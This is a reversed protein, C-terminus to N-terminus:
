KAIIKSEKQRKETKEKLLKADHITAVMNIRNDKFIQLIYPVIKGLAFSKLIRRDENRPASTEEAKHEHM